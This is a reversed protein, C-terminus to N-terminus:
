KVAKLDVIFILTENPGIPGSGQPGYALDPPITLKRRGGVKMGAVGEDWGQIVQGAGLSFPFPQGRNWSADFEEGNKFLAGVYQVTVTDGAKATKGDGKVIEETELKTPPQGGPAQIKPRQKLDTSVPTKKAKKTPPQESTTPQQTQQQTTQEPQEASKKDKGCGSVAFAAVTLLVAVQLRSLVNMVPFDQDKEKM